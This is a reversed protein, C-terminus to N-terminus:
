RRFTDPGTASGKADKESRRDNRPPSPGGGDQASSAPASMSTSCALWWVFTSTAFWVFGAVPLVLWPSWREGLPWVLAGFSLLGVSGLAAGLADDRAEESGRHRAVLSVSAPLIAPFALFLGGVVPGFWHAMLGALVTVSGGFVFRVAYESWA